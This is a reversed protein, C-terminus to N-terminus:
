QVLALLCTWGGRGWARLPGEWAGLMHEGGGVRWQLGPCGPGQPYSEANSFSWGQGPGKRSSTVLHGAYGEGTIERDGQGRPLGM